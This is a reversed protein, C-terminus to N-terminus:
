NHKLMLLYLLRGFWAIGREDYLIENTNLLVGVWTCTYMIEIVHDCFVSFNRGAPSSCCLQSVPLKVSFLLMTICSTYASVLNIRPQLMEQHLWMHDLMRCCVNSRCTHVSCKFEMSFMYVYNYLLLYRVEQLIDTVDGHNGELCFERALRFCCICCNYM